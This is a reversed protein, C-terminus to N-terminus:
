QVVETALALAAPSVTLGLSRTLALNIVFDFKAPREVPLSRPDTGRLVLDLIEALRRYIAPANFEYYLTARYRDGGLVPLRERDAFDSLVSNKGDIAIAQLGEGRAKTLANTDALGTVELPVLDLGLSRAVPVLPQFVIGGVGLPYFFGVRRINPFAEKLIELRKPWLSQATTIGTMNRGPEAYGAVFGDTVPDSNTLFVVPVRISAAAALLTTAHFTIIAGDVGDLMERVRTQFLVGIRQAVDFGPDTSPFRAEIKKYDWKLNDGVVHGLESLRALFAALNEDNPEPPTASLWGVVKAAPKDNGCAALLPWAAAALALAGARRLVEKRSAVGTM